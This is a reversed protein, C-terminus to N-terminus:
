SLVNIAIGITLAILVIASLVLQLRDTQSRLGHIGAGIVSTTGTVIAIVGKFSFAANTRLIAFGFMLGLVAIYYLVLENLLKQELKDRPWVLATGLVMFAIVASGILTIVTLARAALSLDV